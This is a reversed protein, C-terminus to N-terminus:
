LLPDGKSRIWTPVRAFSNYLGIVVLGGPKGKHLSPPCGKKQTSSSASGIVVDFM